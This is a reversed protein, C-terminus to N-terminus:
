SLREIILPHRSIKLRNGDRFIRAATRKDILPSTIFKRKRMRMM